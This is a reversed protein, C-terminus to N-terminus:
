PRSGEAAPPYPRSRIVANLAQQSRDDAISALRATEATRKYLEDHEDASICMVKHLHLGYAFASVSLSAFAVAFVSHPHLHLKSLSM